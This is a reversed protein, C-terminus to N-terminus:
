AGIVDPVPLGLEQCRECYLELMSELGLESEVNGDEDLNLNKGHVVFSVDTLGQNDDLVHLTHIAGAPEYLYSGKRNVEPYELYRWAGAHTFAFVEGTHEHRPITIGPEFRVRVVFTDSVPNVHLLQFTIGEDFEVFPLDSESRMLSAPAVAGSKPIDNM